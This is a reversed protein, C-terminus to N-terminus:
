DHASDQKEFQAMVIMIEERLFASPPKTTAASSPSPTSHLRGNSVAIEQSDFQGEVPQTFQEM